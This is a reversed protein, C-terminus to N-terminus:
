RVASGCSSQAFSMSSVGYARRYGPRATSHGRLKERVARAADASPPSLPLVLPGPQRHDTM